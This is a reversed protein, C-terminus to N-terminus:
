DRQVEFRAIRVLDREDAATFRWRAELLEMPPETSWLAERHCCACIEPLRGGVSDFSYGCARCYITTM